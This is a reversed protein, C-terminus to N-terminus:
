ASKKPRHDRERDRKRKEEGKELLKALSELTGGVRQYMKARWNCVEAVLDIERKQENTARPHYRSCVPATM